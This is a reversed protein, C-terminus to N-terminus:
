DRKMPETTLNLGPTFPHLEASELAIRFNVMKELVYTVMNGTIKHCQYKVPVNEGTGM